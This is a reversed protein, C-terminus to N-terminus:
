MILTMFCAIQQFLFQYSFRFFFRRYVHIYLTSSIIIIKQLFFYFIEISVINNSINVSHSTNISIFVQLEYPVRLAMWHDTKFECFKVCLRLVFPSLSCMPLFLSACMRSICLTFSDDFWRSSFHHSNLLFSLEREIKCENM